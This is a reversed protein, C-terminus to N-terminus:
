RPKTVGVPRYLDATDYRIVPGYTVWPGASHTVQGTTVAMLNSHPRLTVKLDNLGTTSALPRIVLFTGDTQAIVEHDAFGAPRSPVVEVVAWSLFFRDREVAPRVREAASELWAQLRDPNEELATKWPQYGGVPLIGVLSTTYGGNRMQQYEIGRLIVAGAAYSSFETNLVARAEGVKTIPRPAVAVPQPQVIGPTPIIQSGGGTDPLRSPRPAQNAAVITGAPDTVPTAARDVGQTPAAPPQTEASPTAAPSAQPIPQVSRIPESYVALAMGTVVGLVAALPALAGLVWAPWTAPTAASM